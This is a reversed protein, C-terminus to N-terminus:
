LHNAKNGYSNKCTLIKCLFICYLCTILLISNCINLQINFSFIRSKNTFDFLKHFLKQTNIQLLRLRAAQAGM